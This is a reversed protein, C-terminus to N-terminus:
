SGDGGGGARRERLAIYTTAAFVIV